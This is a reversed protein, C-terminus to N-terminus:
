ALAREAADLRRLGERIAAGVTQEFIVDESVGRAKLEDIDADTVTAALRRVKDLYGALEAPPEPLSAANARLQDLPTTV